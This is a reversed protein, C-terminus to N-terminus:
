GTAAVPGDDYDVATSCADDDHRAWYLDHFRRTIAGPRGDGVPRDEYQTVATIGGATTSVFIEDADVVEEARVPRVDCRVGLDRAIEIVTRRTIGEFMGHSPTALAGDRVVFVNFGPGETVTGDATPLLPVTAGRDFAEISRQRETIPTLEAGFFWEAARATLLQGSVDYSAAVAMAATMAFVAFVARYSSSGPDAVRRGFHRRLDDYGGIRESGIFTQPTTGVGYKAKFADTDERTTLHRDEVQFGERRLLDKAKLGYPCTHGPMVMRYLTATRTPQTAM